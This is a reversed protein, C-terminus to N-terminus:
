AIAAGVRRKRVNRPRAAVAATSSRVQLSSPLRVTRPATKSGEIRQHLCNWAEIGLREVPQRIATISPTAAQMWIYDDFGVLSIDTPIRIEAAALAAIVGITTFNTLAIIGTPRDKGEFWGTLGSIVEELTLGVELVKPAACGAAIFAKTIAEQRERINALQLTSAVVLVDRHGLKLLHDAAIAAARPNDIAVSDVNERGPLRDVVVFPAGNAALVDSAPSGDEAPIVIIGAPRWSLLAHLRKAELGSDNNSSAIVIDYGDTRIAQEVAAIISTFFPNDLSPVVIAIVKAKGSRLQSAARDASYGLEGAARRVNEVLLPSVAKRNGLVNSVTAVSVEAQNAVDRITPRKKPTMNAPLVNLMGEIFPALPEHM